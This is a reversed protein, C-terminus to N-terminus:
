IFISYPNLDAEARAGTLWGLAVPTDYLRGPGLRRWLHRLGPAIVRAVPMGVDPRTQDVVLVELGKTRLREALEGVAAGAGIPSPAPFDKAQLPPAPLPDVFPANARSAQKFWDLMEANEARYRARGDPAIQSVYPYSQNMETLARILARAPDLDAGFGFIIDQPAADSRASLAVFVPVGLDASVDLAWVDRGLEGYRRLLADIYPDAFSRLDLGPRQLRNYWWIAVADREILEVLGHLIAREMDGAAACGNSDAFCITRALEPHGYWCYAAPVHRVCAGTLSWAPTWDIEEDDALPQPVLQHPSRLRSNWASRNAFQAPSFMLLDNMRVASEGLAATSARLTPELDGQWVGSYRELAEGIAGTRAQARSTGKGGSRGLLNKALVTLEDKFMPFLHAALATHVLPHPTPLGDVVSHVVGTIPSVFRELGDRVPEELAQLGADLVIPTVPRQAPAGCAECQPRRTMAHHEVAASQHDMVVIRSALAADGPRGVWRLALTAALQVAADRTAATGAVPSRPAGGARQTALWTEAQRAERLRHALCAWCATEGPIFLPGIWSKLGGPRVIMWPRGDELRAANFPALHPDLHDDVVVLTLDGVGDTVTLGVEALARAMPGAGIDGLAAVGVRASRALAPSARAADFWAPAAADPAEWRLAGRQDLRDLAFYAQPAPTGRGVLTAIEDIDRTGDLFGAVTVFSQGRMTWHDTETLILLHDPGFIEVRCDERFRPRKQVAEAGM